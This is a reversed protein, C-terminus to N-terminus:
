ANLSLSHQQCAEQRTCSETLTRLNPEDLITIQKNNVAILDNSSLQKIIRSFTEPKVSLRSALAVKPVDLEFVAGRKSNQALLYGAVRCAADSLTLAYIEHVFDYLRVSMDQLLSICAENSQHLVRLFNANDIQILRCGRMAQAAVPYHCDQIFMMAEGFIEGPNIIELIKEDGGPSLLVLKVQGEKLFYFYSADDGQSFLYQNRAVSVWRADKCAQQMQQPTFARFLFHEQLSNLIDM